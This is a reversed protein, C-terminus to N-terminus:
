IKMILHDCNSVVPYTFRSPLSCNGLHPSQTFDQCMVNGARRHDKLVVCGSNGLNVFTHAFALVSAM